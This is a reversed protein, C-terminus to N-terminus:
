NTTCDINKSEGETWSANSSSFIMETEHLNKEGGNTWSVNAASISLGIKDISLSYVTSQGKEWTGSPLSLNEKTIVKGDLTYSISFTGTYAPLMFLTIISAAESNATISVSGTYIYSKESNIDSWTAGSDNFTLKGSSKGKISLNTITLNYYSKVKFIIKALAHGFSFSVGTNPTNLNLAPLATLLDTQANNNTYVLQPYGIQTSGSIGITNGATSIDNQAPAYAFFSIKDNDNVPWYALPSYEWVGGNKKVEQNYMFNPTSSAPNFDGGQTFYALVGFSPLNDTTLDTGRTQTEVNPSFGVPIPLQPTDDTQTCAVFCPLLAALLIVTVTYKMGNM